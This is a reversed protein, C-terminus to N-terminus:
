ISFPWRQLLQFIISIVNGADEEFLVYPQESREISRREISEPHGPARFHVVTNRNKRAHELKEFEEQSLVGRALEERMLTALNARELDNRADAYLDAAFVREIFGLGLMVVALFQGYVFCYRAEEFLSKSLYGGPFLQFGVAPMTAELWELRALREDFAIKDERRLWQRPVSSKAAM